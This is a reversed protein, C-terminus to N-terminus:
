ADILVEWERQRIKRYEVVEAAMKQETAKTALVLAYQLKKKTAIVVKVDEKVMWLAAADM